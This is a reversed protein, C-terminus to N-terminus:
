FSNLLKKLFNIETQADNVVVVVVAHLVEAVADTMQDDHQVMCSDAHGGQCDDHDLDHADVKDVVADKRCGCCNTWCCTSPRLLVVAATLRCCGQEDNLSYKVLM